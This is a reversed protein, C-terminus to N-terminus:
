TRQHGTAKIGNVEVILVVMWKQVPMQIILAPMGETYTQMFAKSHFSPGKEPQNIYRDAPNYIQTDSCGRSYGSTAASAILKSIANQKGNLAHSDNPDIALAEDFTQIAQTYKGLSSLANGKGYLAYKDNPDISLAKDYYQIAMDHYRIAKDYYQIDQAYNGLGDLANGKGNLAEKYNPDIDLAKDYYQIADASPFTVYPINLRM